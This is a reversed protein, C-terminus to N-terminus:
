MPTPMTVKVSIQPKPGKSLAVTRTSGLPVTVTVVPMEGCPWPWSVVKAWITASRRPTEMSATTTTWPSVARVGAPIPVM